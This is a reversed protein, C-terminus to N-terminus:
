PCVPGWRKDPKPGPFVAWQASSVVYAEQPGQRLAVQVYEATIANRSSRRMVWGKPITTHGKYRVVHYDVNLVPLKAEESRKILESLEKSPRGM